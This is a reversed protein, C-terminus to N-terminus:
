RRRQRPVFVAPLRRAVRPHRPVQRPLEPRRRHRRRPRRLPGPPRHLEAQQPRCLRLPVEVAPTSHPPPTSTTCPSHSVSPQTAPRGPALRPAAPRSDASRQVLALCWLGAHVTAPRDLCCCAPRTAAAPACGLPSSVWYNYFAKMLAQPIEPGKLGFDAPQTMMLRLHGCGQYKPIVLADLWAKRVAPTASM